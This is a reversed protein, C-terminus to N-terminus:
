LNKWKYGGAAERKGNCCKNINTRPIDLIKSAIQQSPWEQIFNGNLDLQIIPVSTLKRRFHVASQEKYTRWELNEVKNNLKDEDIHHVTPKSEPNPIFAQAVLRHVKFTKRKGNQHKLTVSYYGDSNIWKQMIKGTKISKIEGKDSIIYNEYGKIDRWM